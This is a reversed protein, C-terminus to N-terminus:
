RYSNFKYSFVLVDGSRENNYLSKIHGVLSFGNKNYFKLASKNNHKKTHLFAIRCGMREGRKLMELLLKSGVGKNQMLPIVFLQYIHMSNNWEDYIFTAYGIVKNEHEAVIFICNKNSLSQKNCKFTLRKAKEENRTDNESMIHIKTCNKLDSLKAKRIKM